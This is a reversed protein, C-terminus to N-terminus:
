HPKRWVHCCHRINCRWKHKCFIAFASPPSKPKQCHFCHAVTKNVKGCQQLAHDRARKSSAMDTQLEESRRKVKALEVQLMGLGGCLSPRNSGVHRARLGANSLTLRRCRWSVVGGPGDDGKAAGESLAFEISIPEADSISSIGSWHIRKGSTYNKKVLEYASKPVGRYFVREKEPPLSGYCDAIPQIEM